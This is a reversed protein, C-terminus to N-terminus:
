VIDEVECGIAKAIIGITIPRMNKGMTARTVTDPYLGSREAVDKTELCAKALALDYKQKDIVM